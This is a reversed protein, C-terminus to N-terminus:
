FIDITQNNNLLPDLSLHSLQTRILQHLDDITLLSYNADNYVNELM